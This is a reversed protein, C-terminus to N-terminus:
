VGEAVVRTTVASLDTANSVETTSAYAQLKQTTANYPFSRGGTPGADISFIRSLGLDSAKLPLGGTPYSNDFMVDYYNVRVNGQVSNRVLKFTLAM